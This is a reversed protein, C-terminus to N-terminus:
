SLAEFIRHRDKAATQALFSQFLTESGLYTITMLGIGLLSSVRQYGTRIGAAQIVSFIILTAVPTLLLVVIGVTSGMQASREPSTSQAFFLSVCAGIMQWVVFLTVFYSLAMAIDLGTLHLTGSVLGASIAIFLIIALVFNIARGKILVIQELPFPAMYLVRRANYDPGLLNGKIGTFVVFPLTLMAEFMVVNSPPVFVIFASCYCTFLITLLALGRIRPLSRVERLLFCLGPSTVLKTSLIDSLWSGQESKISVVVGRYYSTYLEFSYEAALLVATVVVQVALASSAAVWQGNRGAAFVKVALMSTPLSSLWSPYLIQALHAVRALVSSDQMTGARIAAFISISVVLSGLFVILPRVIGALKRGFLESGIAGLTNAQVGFCLISVSCFCLSLTSSHGAQSVFLLMPLLTVLWLGLLGCGARIIFVLIPHFPTRAPEAAPTSWGLVNNGLVSFVLWLVLMSNLVAGTQLTYADSSAAHSAALIPKGFRLLITGIVLALSLLGFLVRGRLASFQRTRIVLLIKLLTM